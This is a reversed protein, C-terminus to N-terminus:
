QNTLFPFGLEHIIIGLICLTTHCGVLWVLWGPHIAAVAWLHGRITWSFTARGGSCCSLWRRHVSSQLEQERLTWSHATLQLLALASRKSLCCISWSCCYDLIMQFRCTSCKNHSWMHTIEIRRLQARASGSYKARIQRLRWPAM